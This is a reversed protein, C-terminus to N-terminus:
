RTLCNDQRHESLIKEVSAESPGHRSQTSSFASAAHCVGRLRHTNDGLSGILDLLTDLPRCDGSFMTGLWLQEVM